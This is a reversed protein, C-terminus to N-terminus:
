LDFEDFDKKYSPFESELSEINNWNEVMPLENGSGDLLQELTYKPKKM